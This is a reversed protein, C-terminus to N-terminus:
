DEQDPALGSKFLNIRNENFLQIATTIAPSSGNRALLNNSERISRESSYLGKWYAISADSDEDKMLELFVSPKIGLMFAVEKPSYATAAILEIQELQEKSLEM